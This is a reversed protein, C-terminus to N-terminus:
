TRRRAYKRALAFAWRGEEGFLRPLTLAILGGVAAAACGAAIAVLWESHEPRLQTAVYFAAGTTLVAILLHRAHLLALERWGGKLVRVSLDLM